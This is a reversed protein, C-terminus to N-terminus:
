TEPQHLLGCGVPYWLALCVCACVRTMSIPQLATVCAVSEGTYVPGVVSHASAGCYLSWKPLAYLVAGTARPVNCLPCNQVFSIFVGDRNYSVQTHISTPNVHADGDTCAMPTDYTAYGPFVYLWWGGTADATQSVALLIQNADGGCIATVIFREQHKDFAASPSIYGGDCDSAVLGFFDPLTIITPSADDDASGYGGGEGGTDTPLGDDDDVPIIKVLSNVIHLIHHPGAALTADAPVVGSESMWLGDDGWVPRFGTHRKRPRPPLESSDHGLSPESGHQSLGSPQHKHHQKHPKHNSIGVSATNNSSYAAAPAVWNISSSSSAAKSAAAVSVAGRSSSALHLLPSSSM